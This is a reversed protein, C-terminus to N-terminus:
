GWPCKRLTRSGDSHLIMGASPSLFVSSIAAAGPRVGKLLWVPMEVVPVEWLAAGDAIRERVKREIDSSIVEVPSVLGSM